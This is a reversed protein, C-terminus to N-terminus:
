KEDDSQDLLKEVEKIGIMPSVMEMAAKQALSLEYEKRQEPTMRNVWEERSGYLSPHDKLFERLIRRGENEISKAMNRFDAWEQEDKPITFLIQEEEKRLIRRLEDEMAKSEMMMSERTLKIDETNKTSEDM